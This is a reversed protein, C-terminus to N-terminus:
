SLRLCVHDSTSASRYRLAVVVVTMARFSARRSPYYAHLGPFTPCWHAMVSVLTGNDVHHQVLELPVFALGAGGLAANIMQYVGNFVCRGEVRAQLDREGDSLEWADIGGSSTLRL